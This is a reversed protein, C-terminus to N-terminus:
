SSVLDKPSLRWPKFATSCSISFLRSFNSRERRGCAEQKVLRVVEDVVSNIDLKSMEPKSNQALSRIRQIMGSAREVDGLIKRIVRVVEPLDPDPRTLKRLSCAANIAIAALPQNLEHAISASIEGLAAVRNAHGLQERDPLTECTTKPEILDPETELSSPATFSEPEARYM